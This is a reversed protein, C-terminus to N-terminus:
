QRKLGVVVLAIIASLVTFGPNGDGTGEDTDTQDDEGGVIQSDDGDTEDRDGVGIKETAEEETHYDDPHNDPYYRVRYPITIEEGELSDDSVRLHLRMSEDQSPDITGMLVQTSGDGTTVDKQGTVEIGPPLEVIAEVSAKRDNVEPNRVSVTLFEAQDQVDFETTSVSSTVTPSERFSNVQVTWSKETTSGWEDTAAVTVTYTGAREFRHDTGDGTDIEYGDVFWAYELTGGSDTYGDVAFSVSEGSLIEVREETPQVRDIEPPEPSEIEVTWTQTTDATEAFGDSVSATLEYKGEDFETGNMVMSEGATFHEDDIYWDVETESGVNSEASLAFEMEENGSIVQYTEEPSISTITPPEFEVVEVTPGIFSDTVGSGGIDSFETIVVFEVEYEGAYNPAQTTFSLSSPGTPVPGAEYIDDPTEGRDGGKPYFYTEITAYDGNRPRYVDLEVEIDGGPNVQLNSTAGTPDEIVYETVYIGGRELPVYKSEGEALTIEKYGWPGASGDDDPYFYLRYEGPELFSQDDSEFFGNSDAYLIEQEGDSLRKAVVVASSVPDGNEDLTQGIIEEPDPDCVTSSGEIDYYVRDNASTSIEDAPYVSVSAVAQEWDSGIYETVSVTVQDNSDHDSIDFETVEHGYGDESVGVTVHSPQKGGLDYDVTFEFQQYSGPELRTCDSPDANTVDASESAHVAGVFVGVAGAAAIVAVLVYVTGRGWQDM